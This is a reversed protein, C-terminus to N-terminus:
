QMLDNIQASLPDVNGGAKSQKVVSRLYDGMSFTRFEFSKEILKSYTGKGVGPAGFVLLNIKRTAINKM